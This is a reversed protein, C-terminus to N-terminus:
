QTIRTVKFGKKELLELVSRPGVLHAAGVAIFGGGEAHLKEIPEIWSANRKYILDNASQAYEEASHGKAIWRDRESDQIAQLKADDGAIYAALMDKMRQETEPLDDLMDELARTDMWKDLVTMQAEIPELYVIKKNHNQAHGLLVGDMPPTSPLGRLSLLTVPIMPKVDILRAAEKDGVADELKKWYAPGLDDKLSTGDHQKIDLKGGQALDTEMAFTPEADLKQWVLDPLRTTPDVGVHITGFLYSTKGDKEAKWLLPKKLPDKAAPNSWPDSSGGQTVPAGTQAPRDESKKCAVSAALVVGLLGVNRLKM